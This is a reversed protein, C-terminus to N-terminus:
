AECVVGLYSIKLYQIEILEFHTESCLVVCILEVNVHNHKYKLERLLVAKGEWKQFFIVQVNTHFM